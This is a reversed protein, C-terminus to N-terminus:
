LVLLSSTQQPSYEENTVSLLTTFLYLLNLYILPIKYRIYEDLLLYKKEKMKKREEKEKEKAM